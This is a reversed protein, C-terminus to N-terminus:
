TALDGADVALTSGTMLISLDSACFLAVRAVDDAVGNRRLPARDAMQALLDGLGAAEFAARGAEIGPTEILTPAIALARIGMPGLEVALAKTLGGVAHKSTVYHAVGPGSAQFGATSSLNIIVGPRGGAVMQAAAAHAGLFTGRLNVDLVHDWGASTMDLFPTSPYIGANNVWVDLRGLDAVARAAVADVAAEDTVDLALGLARHGHDAAVSAAVQEALPGDVDAVVVDAGAEAFRRCIAEGIGRAGGTVVAGRGALSVLEAIPRDSVDAIAM